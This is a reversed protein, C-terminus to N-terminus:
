FLAAGVAVGCSFFSLVVLILGFIVLNFVEEM